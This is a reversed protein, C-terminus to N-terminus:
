LPVASLPNAHVRHVVIERDIGKVRMSRTDLEYAALLEAAGPLQFMEESLCIENSEALGQVRAALNVAQGFYDLQGNLTVALCTGVHAGIKLTILEEGATANFRTIERRMDLAARLADLPQHFSAMVADGITKVLAGSNSAIADRLLGFHQRVLDFAKMDGIRDYLATSGKIDTFLLAIRKVTLGEGSVVTESPFLDLFTQSSLLRAGSLFRELTISYHDAINIGLLANRKTTANTFIFELRGPAIAAKQTPAHSTRFTYAIPENRHDLGKNVEVVPGDTFLLLGPELEVHFSRTEGPEVYALIVASRRYFDRLSSGGDVVGNETFRYFLTYAEADLAGPDHYRSERVARSVTFTIEIFESLDAERETSCVDCFYHASASNLSHFSEVIDGCGPCVYQWEMTFLGAKRGHLFLDIATADDIGRQVAFRVPNIRVLQPDAATRVFSELMRLLDEHEPYSTGIQRM